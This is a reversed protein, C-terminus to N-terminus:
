KGWSVLQIKGMEEKIIEKIEMASLIINVETVDMELSEVLEDKELPELELLDFIKRELDSLNSRLDNLFNEDDGHKGNDKEFGLAMLLDQASIIPVAGQHILKNTGKSNQSFISGPVALLDRNYELTLRATILTGSKETAEIVLTAQCMGAMLRNRMPFTWPTAHFDPEFESLFCGGSKLVEDQLMQNMSPYMVEPSLGSGPFVITRLGAEMASMHAITDIGVAFGSVIVVPYGKLGNILMECVDRGYSSCRRSGVVCLYILREDVPPLNGIIWLDKPPDPIELLMPPFDSRELKRIEM